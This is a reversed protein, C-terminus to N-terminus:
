FRQLNEVSKSCYLPYSEPPGHLWLGNLRNAFPYSGNTEEEVFLCVILKQECSSFVTFPNRFIAQAETKRKGNEKDMNGHGRRHKRTRSCTVMDDDLAHRRGHKWTRTWTKMDEDM